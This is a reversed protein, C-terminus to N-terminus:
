KRVFGEGIKRREFVGAGNRGRRGALWSEKMNRSEKSGKPPLSQRGVELVRVNVPGRKIDKPPKAEADVFTHKKPKSKKRHELNLPPTPPRAAPEATLIEDPLLAPLRKTVISEPTAHNHPVRPIVNTSDVLRDPESSDDSMEEANRRKNKESSRAQQKL